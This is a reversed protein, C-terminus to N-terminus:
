EAFSVSVAGTQKNVLIISAPLVIVMHSGLDDAGLIREIEVSRLPGAGQTCTLRDGDFDMHDSDTAFMMLANLNRDLVLDADAPLTAFKNYVNNITAANIM